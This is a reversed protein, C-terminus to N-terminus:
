CRSESPSITDRIDQNIPEVEILEAKALELHEDCAWECERDGYCVSGKAELYWRAVRDCDFNCTARDPYDARM